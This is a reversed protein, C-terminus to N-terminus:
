HRRRRGSSRPAALSVYFALLALTGGIVVPDADVRAAIGGGILGVVAAAIIAEIVRPM